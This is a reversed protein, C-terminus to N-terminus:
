EQAKRIAALTNQAEGQYPSATEAAIGMWKTATAINDGGIDLKVYCIGLFYALSGWIQGGQEQLTDETTLLLTRADRYAQKSDGAQIVQLKGLVYNGYATFLGQHKAWGEPTQGDPMPKEAIVQLLQQAYNQAKDYQAQGAYSDALTFLYGENNPNVAISTEMAELMKPFDGLQQYAQVYYDATQKAYESEPYHERLADMYNVKTQPETIKLASTYVSYEIYQLVGKAYDIKAQWAEVEDEYEPEPAQSDKEPSPDLRSCTRCCLTGTRSARM